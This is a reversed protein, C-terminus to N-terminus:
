SREAIHSDRSRPALHGHKEVVVGLDDVAAPQLRQNAVRNPPRDADDSRLEVEGVPPQLVPAHDEPSATDGPVNM